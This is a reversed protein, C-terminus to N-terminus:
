FEVRARAVRERCPEKGNRGVIRVRLRIEYTRYPIHLWHRREAKRRSGPAGLIRRSVQAERRIPRPTEPRNAGRSIILPVLIRDMAGPTSPMGALAIPDCRAPYRPQLEEAGRAQTARKVIRIFAM